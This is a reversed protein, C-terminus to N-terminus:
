NNGSKRDRGASASRIRSRSGKLVTVLKPVKHELRALLPKPIVPPKRLPIKLGIWYNQNNLLIVYVPTKLQRNRKGLDTPTARGECPVNFALINRASKGEEQVLLRVQEMDELTSM